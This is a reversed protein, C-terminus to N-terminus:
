RSGWVHARGSHDYVPTTAKPEGSDLTEYEQLMPLIIVVARIPFLRTARPNPRQLTIGLSKANAQGTIDFMSRSTPPVALM